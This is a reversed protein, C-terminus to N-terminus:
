LGVATLMNQKSYESPTMGTEKKFVVDFYFSSSFGVTEAIETITRDEELFLEKAKNIRYSQLYQMPTTQFTQKFVRRFYSCSMNVQDALAENGLEPNGYEQSLYELAPQILRYYRLSSYDATGTRELIAFLQYIGAMCTNQYSPRRFNWEKEMKDLIGIPASNRIIDFSTIEPLNDPIDGNFEITICEGMEPHIMSSLGKRLLLVHHQDTIYERGSSTEYVTRGIKKITLAYSGWDRRYSIKPDPHRLRNIGVIEDVKVTSLV